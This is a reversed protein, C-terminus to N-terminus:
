KAELRHIYITMIVWLVASSGVIYIAWIPLMYQLYNGIDAASYDRVRFVAMTFLGSLAMAIVMPLLHYYYFLEKKEFRRRDKRRMGMCNLFETRNKCLDKESLIKVVILLINMFFYLILLMLNMAIKMVCESKLDKIGQEKTYYSKVSLEYSEDEVHNQAFAPMEKLIGEMNAEDANILVLKTPGQRTTVGPIRYEEDEIYEATRMDTFEWDDQADAFYEDSFVVINERFGQHFVGTLSGTEEGIPKRYFYQIGEYRNVKFVDFNKCVTGARLLAQNSWLTYDLKKAKASQAQQYVVYIKKGEKDLGLSKAEYSPDLQKKMTHYTTESIGIHQGQPTRPASERKETGDNAAVRIMPYETYELEYKEKLDNFFEDDSDNAMCVLDYPYLTDMDEVIAASIGQFSFYFLVCFQILIFSYIYASNTRSKHFLQNHLLLKNIYSPKKREKLLYEAVGFFIICLLGLFTIILLLMNEFFMPRSYLFVSVTTFIAGIIIFAKNMSVFIKERGSRLDTSRGVNFDSLISKALMVSTGYLILTIFFARLYTSFGIISHDVAIGLIIESYDLFVSLVFKGILGGIVMSVLIVSSFEAIVFYYLSQRRIGLTLFVGNNRARCKLYYFFLIIIIIVSIIAMPILTNLLITTVESFLGSGRYDSLEIMIDQMGFGIVVFGFIVMNCIMLLVYDKWNKFFNKALVYYFLSTYKGDFALRERKEKEFAEAEAEMRKVEERTEEWQKAFSHLARDILGIKM